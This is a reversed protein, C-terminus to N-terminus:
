SFFYLELVFLSCCRTDWFRHRTLRGFVSSARITSGDADGQIKVPM